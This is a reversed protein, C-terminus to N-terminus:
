TDPVLSTYYLKKGKQIRQLGAKILESSLYELGGGELKYKKMLKASSDKLVTEIRYGGKGEAEQLPHLEVSYLAVVDCAAIFVAQYQPFSSALTGPYFVITYFNNGHENTSYGAASSKIFTYAARDLSFTYTNEQALLYGAELFGMERFIKNDRLFDFGLRRAGTNDAYKSQVQNAICNIIRYLHSSLRRPIIGLCIDVDSEPHFDGKAVSGFLIVENIFWLQILWKALEQAAQFHLSDKDPNSIETKLLGQEKFKHVMKIFKYIRQRLVRHTALIKKHVKGLEPTVTRYSLYRIFTNQDKFFIQNRQDLYTYLVALEPFLETYKELQPRNKSVLLGIEDISLYQGLAVIARLEGQPTQTYLKLALEQTMQLPGM